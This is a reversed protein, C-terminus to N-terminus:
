VVCVCVGCLSVGVKFYCVSSMFENVSREFVCSVSWKSIVCAVYFEVNCLM